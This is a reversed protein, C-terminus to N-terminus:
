LKFVADMVRDAFGRYERRDEPGEYRLPEGFRVSFPGRAFFSETASVRAPVVVAGTRCALLGVGGRASGPRGDKSRTGEPFLVLCGGASLTEMARRVAAIDPRARDVPICGGARLLAGLLPIRFLEQKALFRAPRRPELALSLLPADLLSIHNAAIIVTGERPVNELGSVLIGRLLRLIPGCIRHFLRVAWPRKV